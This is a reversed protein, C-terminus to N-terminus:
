EDHNDYCAVTVYVNSGAPVGPHGNADSGSLGSIQTVKCASLPASTDGQVRVNYGEAELSAVTEDAPGGASPEALAVGPVSLGAAFICETTAVSALLKRM